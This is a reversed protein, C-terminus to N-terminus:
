KIANHVPYQPNLSGIGAPTAEVRHDFDLAQPNDHGFLTPNGCDGYREVLPM